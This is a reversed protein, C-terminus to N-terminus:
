DIILWHLVLKMRAARCGFAPEFRLTQVPERWLEPLSLQPSVPWAGGCVHAGCSRVRMGEPAGELTLELRANGPADVPVDVPTCLTSVEIPQGAPFAARTPACAVLLAVLVLRGM